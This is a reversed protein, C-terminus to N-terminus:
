INVMGITDVMNVNDALVMSDVMDVIDVMGVFDMMNEWMDMNYVMLEMDEMNVLEVKAISFHRKAVEIACFDDTHKM